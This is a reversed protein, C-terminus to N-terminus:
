RHLGNDIQTVDEGTFIWYLVPVSRKVTPKRSGASL